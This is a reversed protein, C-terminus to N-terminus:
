VGFDVDVGVVEIIQEHVLDGRPSIAAPVILIVAFNREYDM